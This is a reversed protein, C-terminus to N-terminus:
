PMDFVITDEYTLDHKDFYLYGFTEQVEDSGGTMSTLYMQPDLYRWTVFAGDNVFKLDLILDIYYGESYIVAVEELTEADLVHIPAYKPEFEIILSVNQPLDVTGLPYTQYQRAGQKNYYYTLYYATVYKPDFECYFVYDGSYGSYMVDKAVLEPTASEDGRIVRYLDSKTFIKYPEKGYEECLPLLEDPVPIQVETPNDEYFLYSGNLMPEAEMLAPEKQSLDISYSTGDKYNMLYVVDGIIRTVSLSMNFTPIIKLKGTKGNLIYSSVETEGAENVVHQQFFLNETQPDISISVPTSPLHEALVTLDGTYFHYRLIRHNFIGQHNEGVGVLETNALYFVLDDAASNPSIVMCDSAMLVLNACPWGSHDCLPDSCASFMERTELNIVTGRSTYLLNNFFMGQMGSGLSVSSILTRYDEEPVEVDENPDPVSTCSPILACLLLLVLLLAIKRM